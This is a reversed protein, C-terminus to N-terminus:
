SGAGRRSCDSTVTFAVPRGELPVLVPSQFRAPDGLGCVNVTRDDIWRPEMPSQHDYWGIEIADAPPGGAANLAVSTIVSGAAGGLNDASLILVADGSPNSYERTAPVACAAVLTLPAVLNLLNM